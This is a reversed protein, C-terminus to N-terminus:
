EGTLHLRHTGLQSRKLNEIGLGGAAKDFQGERGLRRKAIVEPVDLAAKRHDHEVHHQRQRRKDLQAM